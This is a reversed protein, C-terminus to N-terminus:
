QFFTGVEKDFGSIGDGEGIEVVSQGLVAKEADTLISQSKMAIM